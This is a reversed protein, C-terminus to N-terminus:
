RFLNSSVTDDTTIDSFGVAGSLHRRKARTAFNITNAGDINALEVVALNRLMSCLKCNGRYILLPQYAGAIMEPTLHEDSFM